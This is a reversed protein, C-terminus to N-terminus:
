AIRRRTPPELTKDDLGLTWTGQDGHITLWRDVLWRWGTRERLEQANTRLRRTLAKKFAAADAYGAVHAADDLRGGRQVVHAAPILRLLVQIQELPPSGAETLAAYLRARSSGLRAAVHAPSATLLQPERHLLKVLQVFEASDSGIRSKLYRGVDTCQESLFHEIGNRFAAGPYLLVAGLRAVPWAGAFDSVEARDLYVATAPLLGRQHLTSLALIGAASLASVFAVLGSPPCTRTCRALITSWDPLLEADNGIVEQWDAPLSRAGPAVVIMQM